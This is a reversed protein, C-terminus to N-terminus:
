LECLLFVVSYIYFMDSFTYTSEYPATILLFITPVEHLISECCSLIAQWRSDQYALFTGLHVFTNNTDDM